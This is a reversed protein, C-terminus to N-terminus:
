DSAKKTCFLTILFSRLEKKIVILHIVMCWLMCSKWAVLTFFIQPQVSWMKYYFGVFQGQWEWCASCRLENRDFRRKELSRDCNLCVKRVCDLFFTEFVNLDKSEPEEAKLTLYTHSVYTNILTHISCLWWSNHEVMVKMMLFLHMRLFFFDGLNRPLWCREMHSSRWRDGRSFTWDVFSFTLYCVSSEGKQMISSQQGKTFAFLNLAYCLSPVTTGKWREGTICVTFDDGCSVQRIAKGQLKEVHKPQRYSARDGHGLQGHLKTGGQMNQLFFFGFM